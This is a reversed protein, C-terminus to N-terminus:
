GSGGVKLRSAIVELVAATECFVEDNTFRLVAVGCGRLFATRRRDHDAIVPDFQQGGDLEIALRRKPCYFDVIFPGVEHQRRFEYGEFQRARLKTWILTEVDTANARPERRRYPHNRM